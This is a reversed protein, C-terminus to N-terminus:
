SVEVRIHDGLCDGGLQISRDTVARDLGITGRARRRQDCREDLAAPRRRRRLRVGARHTRVGGREDIRHRRDLRSGRHVRTRSRVGRGDAWGGARRPSSSRSRYNEALWEPTWGYRDLMHRHKAQFAVDASSPSPGPRDPAGEMTVVDEGDPDTNLNFAVRPNAEVNANRPARKHSYVVVEGDRWLFWIPSSQPQGDPNITTVWGMLETELRRLVRAGDATTPDLARM